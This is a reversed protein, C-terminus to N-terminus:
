GAGLYFKHFKAKDFNGNVDKFFEHNQIKESATYVSEDQLETNDGTL